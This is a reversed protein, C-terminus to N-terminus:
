TMSKASGWTTKRIATSGEVGEKKQAEFERKHSQKAIPPSSSSFFRPFLLLNAGSTWSWTVKKQPPSFSCYKVNKKNSNITIWCRPLSVKKALGYLAGSVREQVGLCVECMSVKKKERPFYVSIAQTHSHRAALQAPIVGFNFLAMLYLTHALIAGRWGEKRGAETYYIIRYSQPPM